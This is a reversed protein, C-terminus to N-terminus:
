DYREAAVAKRAIEADAAQVGAFEALVRRRDSEGPPNALRTVRGDTLLSALREISPLLVAETEGPADVFPALTEEYAYFPICPVEAIGRRGAGSAAGDPASTLDAFEAEALRRRLKLKVQESPDIRTLLPYIRNPRRARAPDAAWQARVDAAVAATGRISQ